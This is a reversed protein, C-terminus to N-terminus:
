HIFFEKLISASVPIKLIVVVDETVVYPYIIYDPGIGGSPVDVYWRGPAPSYWGEGWPIIRDNNYCFTLTTGYELTVEYQMVHYNDPDDLDILGEAEAERIEDLTM